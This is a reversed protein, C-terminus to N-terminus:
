RHCDLLETAAQIVDAATIATMCRHDTPCQRLLCPACDTPKRVIRVNDSAPCTTTHDTSGFVAVIPVAFASAVHMPGSDNSVLLRSHALLAMMQRVSTQGVMNLVPTHMAQAIDDGIEREGPGGTLVIKAGYRAALTDAVEAFREPLWRKASGYAAGPNITIIDNDALLESAWRHEAETCALSVPVEDASIGLRILMQRYYLTHHLIKDSGSISVPYNLLLRRGDTAYGARCPIGACAALFAAEIANQLLIAGDFHQQRLEKVMRWFGKVGKHVGRKDYVMVRDISPHFSFMQAVLPNALLVIEAQPYHHRLGALAPTTMVADGLWNTARVLIKHLPQRGLQKM